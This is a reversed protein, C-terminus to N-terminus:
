ESGMSIEDCSFLNFDSLEMGAKRLVKEHYSFVGAEDRRHSDTGLALCGNNDAVERLMAVDTEVEFHSNLELAVGAAVAEKVVDKVIEDVVTIHNSIFRFPHGLIDIGGNILDSTNKRWTEFIEAEDANESFALFHVSGILVDLRDRFSPDFTFRGDPMLETELGAFLGKDRKADISDLYSEMREAGFERHADYVSTDSMYEWAWAVAEPFYLAFTHDTIVIADLSDSAAIADVAVELTM